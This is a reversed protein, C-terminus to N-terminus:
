AGGQAEVVSRTHRCQELYEAFAQASRDRLEWGFLFEAGFKQRNYM